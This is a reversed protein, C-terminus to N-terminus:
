HECWKIASVRVIGAHLIDQLTELTTLAAGSAVEQMCATYM